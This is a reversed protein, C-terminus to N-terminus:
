HFDPQEDISKLTVLSIKMVNRSTLKRPLALRRKSHTLRPPISIGIVNKLFQM